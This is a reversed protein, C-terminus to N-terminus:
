PHASFTFPDFLPVDFHTFDRVNRTAVTLGHVQATAAILADEYSHDSREFMWRAHRRFIRGDLPLVAFTQEVRDAWQEIELAKGADRQRLKEVGAQIEGLSLASIHLASDPVTELWAVVAGHPKARRLESIVNTDLLYM